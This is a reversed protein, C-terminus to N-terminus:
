VIPFFREIKKTENLCGVIVEWYNHMKDDNVQDYLVHQQDEALHYFIFLNRM